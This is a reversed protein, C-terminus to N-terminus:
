GQAAATAGETRAPGTGAPAAGIFELADRVVEPAGVIRRHGFGSTTVMRARTDGFARLVARSQGIDAMDDDTDHILLLQARTDEPRHLVSFETWIDPEGPFLRTEIQRRLVRDVRPRLGVIQCFKDALFGFEAIGAIAVVRETRVGSRLAMFTGLVGLSHAVVAEFDGYQGHLSRIIERYDLVTTSAGTSDGHGPADFTVPSYGAALLGPVFPTFRSGRSRWGHVLLVPREGSGWRHTVVERDDLRLRGTSSEALLQQETPRVQSRAHPLRFLRYAARGALRPSLLSTGNVATRVFAKTLDM